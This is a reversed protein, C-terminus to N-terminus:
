ECLVMSFFTVTDHGNNYSICATKSLETVNILAAEISGIKKDPFLCPEPFACERCVPCSGAGYVPYDGGLRKKLEMTLLSHLNRGLTMGEYDFSDELEHKTTFVFVNKYSLIKKRQELPDCAPPCTWSKNYKGCANSECAKLLDDSFILASAPLRATEHVSVGASAAAEALTKEIM